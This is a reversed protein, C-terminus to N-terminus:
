LAQIIRRIEKLRGKADPKTLRPFKGGVMVYDNNRTLMLKDDTSEISTIGRESALLKLAAVELLLEVPPPLAGFRDRMEARLADISKQDNLEAFKRYLEIRQRSDAVYKLPIFAAERKVEIHTDLDEM